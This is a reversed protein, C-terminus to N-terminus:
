STCLPEQPSFLACDRILLRQRRAKETAYRLRYRNQHDTLGVRPEFGGSTSINTIESFINKQTGVEKLITKKLMIRVSNIQIIVKKLGGTECIEHISSDSCHALLDIIWKCANKVRFHM